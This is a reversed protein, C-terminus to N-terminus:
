ANDPEKWAGKYRKRANSTDKVPNNAGQTWDTQGVVQNYYAATRPRGFMLGTGGWLTSPMPEHDVLSPIVAWVRRNTAMIYAALRTDDLNDTWAYYRDVWAPFERRVRPPYIVGQPWLPYDTTVWHVGKEVAVTAFRRLYFLMVIDDPKVEAVDQVHRKFDDCVIVDDHLLVLHNNLDGSEIGRRTNFWPGVLETDCHYKPNLHDLAKRARDWRQPVVIVSYDIM